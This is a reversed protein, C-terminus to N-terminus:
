KMKKKIHRGKYSALKALDTSTLSGAHLKVHHAKCLPITKREFGGVWQSYSRVKIRVSKVSRIHHIEINETTGCIVCPEDFQSSTLSSSWTQNLLKDVSTNEKTSFREDFPLIRLNNPRYIKYVKKEKNKFALNKGFKKFIKALTKLKYKKALTLACSYTLFRVIAWLRMRNHVCNYYNLIGRIRSNFYNLIQAHSLPICNSKGKPFFEGKNTRKVFGKEKLKKLLDLIPAHIILRPSFRQRITSNNKKVRTVPKYYDKTTKRIFLDFGLFRCKSQRLSTIKTKEMNLTLGLQQLKDSIKSRIDLADKYSGALLIVWDNVYRVYSIRKFNPDYFDKSPIRLCQNFKKRRLKLNTEKLAARRFKRYELNAKREKGTNYEGGLKNEIFIDLNHLVINNFLPSLVSGQPIGITSKYIKSNKAGVKKIDKNLIYGANLVKKILIETAPCDIQQRLSKVIKNHPIHDFCAKIDGEIIWTFTSANGLQLKKVATHCSRGPRSGHSCDLFVDEYITTLVMQIAKQVIKERPNSVGLPRLEDKGPKPILIRRSPSFKFYGNKIELSIKELYKLSIGDLTQEDIGKSNNGPKSKIMSYALRLTSIDSIIQILNGCRGDKNKQKNVMETLNTATVRENSDTSLIASSTIFQRSVFTFPQRNDKRRFINKSHFSRRRNLNSGVTRLNKRTKHRSNNSKQVRPDKQFAARLSLQNVGQVCSALGNSVFSNVSSLKYPLAVGAPHILNRVTAKFEIAKTLRSTATNGRLCGDMKAKGRRSVGFAVLIPSSVRKGIMQIRM